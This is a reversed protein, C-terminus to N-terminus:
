FREVGLIFGTADGTDTCDAVTFVTDALFASTVLLKYAYTSLLKDSICVSTFSNSLNM